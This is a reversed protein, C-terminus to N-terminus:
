LYKKWNATLFNNHIRVLRCLASWLLTGLLMSSPTCFLVVGYILFCWFVRCRISCFVHAWRVCAWCVLWMPCCTVFHLLAACCVIAWCLATYVIWKASFRHSACLRLVPCCLLMFHFLVACVYCRIYCCLVYCWLLSSFFLCYCLLAYLMVCCWLLYEEM